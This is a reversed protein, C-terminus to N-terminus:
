KFILIRHLKFHEIMVHYDILLTKLGIGLDGTVIKCRYRLKLKRTWSFFYLLYIFAYVHICPICYSLRITDRRTKEFYIKVSIIAKVSLTNRILLTAGVTNKNQYIQPNM